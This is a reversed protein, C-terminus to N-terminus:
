KGEPPQVPEPSGTDDGAPTTGQTHENGADPPMGDPGATGMDPTGGSAGFMSSGSGIRDQIGQPLEEPSEVKTLGLEIDKIFGDINENIEDDSMKLVNKLLYYKSFYGAEVYRNFNDFNELKAQKEKQWMSDLYNNPATMTIRLKTRDLEYEKALGIFKLHLLFLDTLADTFRDQNKKLFRAWKIEDQTIDGSSTAGFIVPAQTGEQLSSVRTLPYKLARYLKKQFFYIDDLEKFGSANGGISDISSGRSGSVPLFYNELVSLIEPQGSTMGTKPDYSVKKQMSQKVSEVYKKAKDAPMNGVDIKFVFREPARIIRYIIVSTELLKLQNYPQQVKDLYGIIDKRNAGYKGTDIYTIQDTYFTIYKTPDAEALAMTEPLTGTGGIYQCFWQIQSTLPNYAFDMTEAPLKKIRQIGDSKKSKDIVNELYLRGDIYYSFMWDDIVRNVNIRNHFLEQFADKINKLVNENDELKDDTIELVVVDGEDNQQTSENSADELVECVEPMTAIDRYIKLKPLETNFLQKSFMNLSSSTNSFSSTFSLDSIGEGFSNEVERRDAQVTNKFAAISENLNEGSHTNDSKLFFNYWAM